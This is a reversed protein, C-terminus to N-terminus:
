EYIIGKTLQTYLEKLSAITLKTLDLQYAKPLALIELLVEIYPKKTRASPLEPIEELDTNEKYYSVAALLDNMNNLTLSTLGSVNKDFYNNILTEIDAKTVRKSSVTVKERKTIEGSHLLGLEHVSKIKFYDMQQRYFRESM